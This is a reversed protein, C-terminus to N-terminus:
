ATNSLVKNDDKSLGNVVPINKLTQKDLGQLKINITKTQIGYGGTKPSQVINHVLQKNELGM